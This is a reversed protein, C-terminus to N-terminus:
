TVGFELLIRRKRAALNGSPEHGLEELIRNANSMNLAQIGQVANPLNHIPENTMLSHLSELYEPTPLTNNEIRSLSNRHEAVVRSELRDFKGNLADFKGDLEDLRNNLRQGNCIGSYFIKLYSIIKRDSWTKRGDTAIVPKAAVKINTPVLSSRTEDSTADVQLAAASRCVDGSSTATPSSM